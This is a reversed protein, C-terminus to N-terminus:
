GCRARVARHRGPAGAADVAPREATTTSAAASQGGATFPRTGAGYAQEPTSVARRRHRWERRRREAVTLTEDAASAVTEDDSPVGDEVEREVTRAIAIISDGSDPTAFRVGQTDRGTSRVGDVKSRVIKGKEM